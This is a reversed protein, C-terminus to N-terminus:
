QFQQTPQQSQHLQQPQYPQQLPLQPQCQQLPQHPEQTRQESSQQQDDMSDDEESEPIVSPQRYGHRALTHPHYVPQKGQAVESQTGGIAFHPKSLQEPTDDFEELSGTPSVPRRKLTEEPMKDALSLLEFQDTPVEHTSQHAEPFTLLVSISLSTHHSLNGQPTGPQKGSESVADPLESSESITDPLKGSESVTDPLENSESVAPALGRSRDTTTTALRLRVKRKKSSNEVQLPILM